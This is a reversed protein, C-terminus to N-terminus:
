FAVFLVINLIHGVRKTLIVTAYVTIVDQLHTNVNKKAKAFKLISSFTLLDEEQDLM